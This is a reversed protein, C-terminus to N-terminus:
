VNGCRKYAPISREGINEGNVYVTFKYEGEVSILLNRVDINITFGQYIRPLQDDIVSIVPLEVEGQNEIIKGEPNTITFKLKNAENLNIDSIGFAIAFSFNSPIIQPRLVMQPAVLTTQFKGDPGPINKVSDCIMFCTLKAM